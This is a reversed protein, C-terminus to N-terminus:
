SVELSDVKWAGNEYVMRVVITGTTSGTTSSPPLNEAKASYIAQGAAKNRGIYVEEESLKDGDSAVSKSFAKVSDPTNNAKYLESGYAYAESIQGAAMSNVFSAATEQASNTSEVARTNKVGLQYAVFATLLVLALTSVVAIIRRTTM